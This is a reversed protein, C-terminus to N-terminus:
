QSKSNPIQKPNRAESKPNRRGFVRRAKALEGPTNVNFWEGARRRPVALLRPRLARALRQLSFERREVQARVAALAARTLLFPFCVVGDADRYFVAEDTARRRRIPERLSEATLFPLDCSLFLVADHRTTALATLLGGLPGCRKVLDRRLVRVPLGLGRAAARAHGLLTRPGLRVRAKDRGMRTSLGGALIVVEVNAAPPPKRM